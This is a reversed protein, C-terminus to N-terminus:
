KKPNYFFLALSSVSTLVINEVLKADTVKTGLLAIGCGCDISLGGILAYAVVFSFLAFLFVAIGLAARRMLGSILSLGTFFELWPLFLAPVPSLSDPLLHYARINQAFVAPNMFKDYSAIILVAGLLIATLVTMLQIVNTKKM